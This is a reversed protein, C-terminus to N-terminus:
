TSVNNVGSIYQAPQPAGSPPEASHTDASSDDVPKGSLANGLTQFTHDTTAVFVIGLDVLAGFLSAVKGSKPNNAMLALVFFLLTLASVRYITSVMTKQYGDSGAKLPVAICIIIVGGVYEAALTGVHSVSPNGLYRIYRTHSSPLGRRGSKGVYRAGKSRSQGPSADSEIPARHRGTAPGEARHRGTANPPSPPQMPNRLNYPLPAENARHRGTAPAKARHRGTAAAAREGVKVPLPAPLHEAARTVSHRAM